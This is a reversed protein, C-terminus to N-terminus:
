LNWVLAGPESKLEEARRFGRLASWNGAAARTEVLVPASILTKFLDKWLSLGARLLADASRPHFFLKVDM